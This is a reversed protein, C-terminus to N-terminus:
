PRSNGTARPGPSSYLLSGSRRPQTRKLTDFAAPNANEPPQPAVYKEPPLQGRLKRLRDFDEAARRQARSESTIASRVDKSSTPSPAASCPKNSVPPSSAPKSPTCASCPTSPSPLANWPSANRSSRSPTPILATSAPTKPLAPKAKPPKPGTFRRGNARNAAFRNPSTPM